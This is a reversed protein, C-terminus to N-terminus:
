IYDGIIFFFIEDLMAEISGATLMNQVSLDRWSVVAGSRGRQGGIM